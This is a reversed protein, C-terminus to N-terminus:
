MGGGVNMQDRLGMNAGSLIAMSREKGHERVANKAGAAGLAQRAAMGEDQEAKVGFRAMNNINSRTAARLSSDLNEDVRALQETALQGSSAKELLEKQKPYFRNEWDEYMKRTLDAYTDAAIGM